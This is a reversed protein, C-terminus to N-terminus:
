SKRRRAFFTADVRREFVGTAVVWSFPTVSGALSRSPVKVVLSFKREVGPPVAPDELGEIRATEPLGDLRVKIALPGKTRNSARLLYRAEALTPDAASSEAEAAYVPSIQVTFPQRTLAAAALAVGFGVTAVTVLTRKVDWGGADFGRFDFRLVGPRAPRLRGLIADCSDICSGCRTCEIQFSGERIDIGMPCVRACAECDICAGTTEDLRVHLSRGDEIVGQLLGYPCVSRCFSERVLALNLFALLTTLAGIAGVWPGFDLRAIRRLVDGLPAFYAMFLATAALSLLAVLALAIARAAKARGAPGLGRTLRRGIADADHALESFVTQPCAYACYVRGFVLSAAGVLWMGFMLALWLLAWEDLWIEQGFLLLKGAPLDFRFLDFLPLLVFVALFALQVLRRQVTFHGTWSPHAAAAM